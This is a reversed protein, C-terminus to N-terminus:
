NIRVSFAVPWRKGTLLFDGSVAHDTAGDSDNGKNPTNPIAAIGNLVDINDRQDAPIRDYLEQANVVGDVAGTDLNIRYLLPTQWVNAWVTRPAAARASAAANGTNDESSVCELENLMTVPEGQFTIPVTRQPTFDRDRITLIGSGDSTVLSDGFSCIGWGETDLRARGTEELTQADRAIATHERWTLQWVTDKDAENGDGKIGVQKTIGEGFLEPELSHLQVPRAAAPDDLWRPLRYIQSSGYEGTGVLLSGDSEFELGQVFPAGFFEFEGTVELKLNQVSVASTQQTSSSQQSVSSETQSQPSSNITCGALTSSGALATISLTILAKRM